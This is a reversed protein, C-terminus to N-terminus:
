TTKFDQTLQFLNTSSAQVYRSSTSIDFSSKQMMSIDDHVLNFSSTNNNISHHISSISHNIAKMSILLRNMHNSYTMFTKGTNESEEMHDKTMESLLTTSKLNSTKVIELMTNTNTVLADVSNTVDFTITKIKKTIFESDAALARIADAVVAFGRGSEGARAAEISANLALLHTQKSISIIAESLHNIEYVVEVDKLSKSLKEQEQAFLETTKHNTKEIFTFQSKAKDLRQKSAKAQIISSDNVESLANTIDNSINNIEEIALNTNGLRQKLQEMSSAIEEIHSNFTHISFDMDTSTNNLNASMIIMKTIIEKIMQNYRNFSNAVLGLEDKRGVEIFHSLDKDRTVKQIDYTLQQIPKRVHIFLVFLSVLITFISIVILIFSLHSIRTKQNLSSKELESKTKTSIVIAAKSLGTLQRESELLMNVASKLEVLGSQYHEIFDHIVKVQGLNIVYTFSNNLTELNTNLTDFEKQILNLNDMDGTFKFNTENNQIILFSQILNNSLDIQRSKTILKEKSENKELLTEYQLNLQRKLKEIVSLASQSQTTLIEESTELLQQNKSISTKIAGYETVLLQLDKYTVLDRPIRTILTNVQDLYEYALKQDALNNFRIYSKESMDLYLLNNTLDSIQNMLTNEKEYGNTTYIIMQFLLTITIILMLFSVILKGFIGLTPLEQNFLIRKKVM